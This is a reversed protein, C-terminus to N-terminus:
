EDWVMIIKSNVLDQDVISQDAVDLLKFATDTPKQLLFRKSAAEPVKTLLLALPLKIRGHSLTIFMFAAISHHNLRLHWPFIRVYSSFYLFSFLFLFIKDEERNKSVQELVVAYILSVPDTKMMRRVLTKGDALRLQIRTSGDAGKPPPPTVVM